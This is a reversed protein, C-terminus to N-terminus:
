SVGSVYNGDTFHYLSSVHNYTIITPTISLSIQPWQHIHCAYFKEYFKAKVKNVIYMRNISRSIKFITTTEMRVVLGATLCQLLLRINLKYM